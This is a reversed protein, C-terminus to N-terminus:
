SGPLNRHNNKGTEAYIALTEIDSIALQDQSTSVGLPRLKALARSFSEPKMGLRAAILAKEYPLELNYQGRGQPCLKVLFNAVRRSGPLVKIQEIQDVLYRQHRSSAALLAFAVDPNSRIMNRLAQGDIKVIRTDTVTTACAPYQGGMFMANEAITEGETFVGIVAEEGSATVRFVKVWGSLILFFMDASDGQQFLTTKKVYTVQRSARILQHIWEDEMASFLQSTKIINWDNHDM